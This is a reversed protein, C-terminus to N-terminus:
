AAKRAVFVAWPLRWTPWDPRTAGDLEEFPLTKVRDFGASRLEAEIDLNNIEEMYPENNRRSHGYHIFELFPDKVRFDLHVLTGGPQLLRNAEQISERLAPTDLEHLVMTSTVLDFSGSKYPTKRLDAHEYALNTVKAEGAEVAALELCPAALDIAIVEARPFRQALPLASKGFGCGMELIRKFDGLEGLFRAFREHLGYRNTAGPQTSQASAKYVLGANPAGALNGPHQHTDVVAYYEPVPVQALRLKAGAPPAPRAGDLTKELGYRGSYKARQMHRELWSYFWYTPSEGMVAAVQAADQVERGRSRENYDAKLAQWIESMWYQKSEVLFAQFAATSREAAV